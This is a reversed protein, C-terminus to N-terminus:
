ADCQLDVGLAKTWVNLILRHTILSLQIKKHFDGRIIPLTITITIKIWTTSNIIKIWTITIKIRIIKIWTITPSFM